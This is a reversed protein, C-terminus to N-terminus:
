AAARVEPPASRSRMTMVIVGTVALLLAIIQALTLGM